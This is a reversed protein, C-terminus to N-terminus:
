GRVGTAAQATPARTVVRAADDILELLACAVAIVPKPPAASTPGTVALHRDWPFTVLRHSSCLEVLRPGASAIVERPWKLPGVAALVVGLKPLTALLQEALRVGPLTPRCVVVVRVSSSAIRRQQEPTPLGLDVITLDVSEPVGSPWTAPTDARARRDLTVRRRSGRRWESTSDTGLEVSAAAVLGCRAPPAADILHVARDAVGAAEAIALAVTSVGAGSHAAVVTVWGPAIAAAEV